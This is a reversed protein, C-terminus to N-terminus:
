GNTSWWVLAGDPQWRVRAFTTPLGDEPLLAVGARRFEVDSVCRAALRRTAEAAILCVAAGDGTTRGALFRVDGITVLRRLTVPDLPALGGGLLDAPESAREFVTM